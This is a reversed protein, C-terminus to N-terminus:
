FKYTEKLLDFAEYAEFGVIVLNKFDVRLNIPIKRCLNGCSMEDLPTLKRMDFVFDNFESDFNEDFSYGLSHVQFPKSGYFGKTDNPDELIQSPFYFKAWHLFNNISVESARQSELLMPIVSKIKEIKSHLRKKELIKVKRGIRKKNSM